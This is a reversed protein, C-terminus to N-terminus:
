CKIRKEQSFGALCCFIFAKQTEPRKSVFRKLFLFVTPYVYICASVNSFWNSHKTWLQFDAESLFHGRHKCDCDSASSSITSLYIKLQTSYSHFYISTSFIITRSKVSSTITINYIHMCVYYEVKKELICHRRKGKWTPQVLICVTKKKEHTDLDGCKRSQNEPTAHAAM